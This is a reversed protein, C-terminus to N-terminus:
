KMQLLRQLSTFTAAAIALCFTNKEHYDGESLSEYCFLSM